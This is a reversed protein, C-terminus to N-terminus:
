VYWILSNGVMQIAAYKGARSTLVDAVVLDVKNKEAEADHMTVLLVPMGAKTVTIKGYGGTRDVGSVIGFWHTLMGHQFLIDGLQPKWAAIARYQALNATMQPM